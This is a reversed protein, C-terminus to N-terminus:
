ASDSHSIFFIYILRPSFHFVLHCFRSPMPMLIPCFSSLHHTFVDSIHFKYPLYRQLFNYKQMQKTILLISFCLM